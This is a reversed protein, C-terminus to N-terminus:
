LDINYFAIGPSGHYTHRVAIAMLAKGNQRQVVDNQTFTLPRTVPPNFDLFHLFQGSESFVRVETNRYDTILVHGDNTGSLYMINNNGRIITQSVNTQLNRLTINHLNSVWLMNGKSLHFDYTQLRQQDHKITYLYQRDKTYVCNEHSSYFFEIVIFNDNATTESIGARVGQPKWIDKKGTKMNYVKVERNNEHFTSVYVIGEKTCSLKWPKYGFDIVETTCSKTETDVKVKLLQEYSSFGVVLTTNDIWCLDSITQSNILPSNTCEM